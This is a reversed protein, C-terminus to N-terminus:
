KTESTMQAVVHEKPTSLYGTVKNKDATFVVVEYLQRDKATYFQLPEYMTRDKKEITRDDAIVNLTFKSKKPNVKKLQLSITSVPVPRRGKLLTFEYYNREGRRRLAELDERNHAVLGSQVGLDGITHELKDKTAALDSKTTEVDSRVTGVESKVGEVEGSVAEMQQQQKKVLRNLSARQQHNLEASRTEMQQQAADLKQSVGAVTSQLSSETADLREALKAQQQDSTALSAELTGLRGYLSFLVFASLLIYAGGIGLWLGMGSGSGEKIRSSSDPESM